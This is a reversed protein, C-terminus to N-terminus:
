GTIDLRQTAMGTAPATAAVTPYKRDLFQQAWIELCVCAFLRASRNQAGRNHEEWWREIVRCDVIGRQALGPMIRDEMMEAAAPTRMYLRVPTLFGVKTRYVFAQGYRAAALRKLPVKTGAPADPQMGDVLLSSPMSRALSVMAEDLYPVRNEISHAMMMRDQQALLQVLHTRLDYDMCDAVFGAGSCRFLSRRREIVHDMDDAMRLDAAGRPPIKYGQTLWWAIDDGRGLEARARRSWALELWRRLAPGHRRRLRRAAWHYRAYGGFLEDSGEGTLLVKVHGHATQGLLHLSVTSAISIPRDMHWTAAALREMHDQSTMTARHAVLGGRQVVTDMYPAESYQKEEFAVSFTPFPHGREEKMLEVLMSSDIGGSLQAGLPADSALQRRVSQRLVAEIRPVTDFAVESGPEPPEPIAWYPRVRVGGEDLTLVHAPPLSSVGKLLTEPGSAYAFVLTEDLAEEDLEPNFAPHVLFAKPESAYMLTWGCVAYYMPKIGMRDRVLHLQRRRLDCIAIAFMGAIRELMGDLGHRHYLCLLVETDSGSRLSYGQAELDATHDFANYIEGNCVLVVSGDASVMPQHGAPSPDLISLRNFGLAGEFASGAPVPLPGHAEASRGTPGRLTFARLGQDDPGRHRIMALMARAAALEAPRGDMNYLGAIGCM